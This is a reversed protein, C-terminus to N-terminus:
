ALAIIVSKDPRAAVVVGMGAAVDGADRDGERDFVPAKLMERWVEWCPACDRMRQERRQGPVEDTM